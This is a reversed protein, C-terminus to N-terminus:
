EENREGRQEAAPDVSHNRGRTLMVLLNFANYLTQGFCHQPSSPLLLLM